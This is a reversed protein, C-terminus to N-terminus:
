RLIELLKRSRGRVARLEEVFFHRRLTDPISKELEDYWDKKKDKALSLNKLVSYLFHKIYVKLKRKLM